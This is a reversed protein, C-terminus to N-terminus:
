QPVTVYSKEPIIEVAKGRRFYVKGAGPFDWEIRGDPKKKKKPQYQMIDVVQLYSMGPEIKEFSNINYDGIAFDFVIYPMDNRSFRETYVFAYQGKELEKKPKIFYVGSNEATEVAEIDVTDFCEPGTRTYFGTLHEMTTLVRANKVVNLRCLSFDFPNAASSFVWNKTKFDPLGEQNNLDLVMMFEPLKDTIVLDACIKNLTRGAIWYKKSYYMDESMSGTFSRPRIHVAQTPTEMYYIGPRIQSSVDHAFIMLLIVCIFGFRRHVFCTSHIAVRTM